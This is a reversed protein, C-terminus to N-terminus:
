RNVGCAASRTSRCAATSAAMASIINISPVIFQPKSLRCSCLSTILQSHVAPMRCARRLSGADWRPSSHLSTNAQRGNEYKRKRKRRCGCGLFLALAKRCPREARQLWPQSRPLSQDDAVTQASLRMPAEHRQGSALQLDLAPAPIKSGFASGPRFSGDFPDLM